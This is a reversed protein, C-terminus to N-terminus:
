VADRMLLLRLGLVGFATAAIANLGRRWTKSRVLRDRAAGASFAIILLICSGITFFILGLIIIQLWVPGVSPNTFQPLFAIFFLGIKPNLLNTMLGRRYASSLRKAADARPTADIHRVTQIALFVLYAGGIWRIVTLAHKSTSLLAALGMATAGVWFLGGTIIGAAAALGGRWGQTAATAMTFVMDPGPAIALAVAGALFLPLISTDIMSAVGFATGNATYDM